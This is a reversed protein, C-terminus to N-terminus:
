YLAAAQKQRAIWCRGTAHAFTILRSLAGIAQPMRAPRRAMQGLWIGHNIGLRDLLSLTDAPIQGRKSLHIARGTAEVLHLYDILQVGLMLTPQHEETSPNDLATRSLGGFGEEYAKDFAVLAPVKDEAPTNTLARSRQQVSTYDSEEPLVSLRARVPNLDVYAMCSLLAKEDLLAQCKYRSEWFRGKCDDEENALRALYENLCKMFWSLDYLRERWISIQAKAVEAVAPGASGEQWSRVSDPCAFIETWHSVVQEDSWGLARSRDVRLVLHYHNEMVAYACLDISFVAVLAALREVVWGRRHAYDQGTHRDFGCLFARRVCRCICHYYPTEDLSIQCSRAQTM